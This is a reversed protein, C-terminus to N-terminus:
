YEEVIVIFEEKKYNTIEFADYVRVINPHNLAMHITIENNKKNLQNENILDMKPIVIAARKANSSSEKVKFVVSSHGNNEFSIVEYGNFFRPFEILTNNKTRASIM